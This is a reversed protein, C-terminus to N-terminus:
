TSQRATSGERAASALEAKQIVEIILKRDSDESHGFRNTLPEQKLEELSARELYKPRYINGYPGTPPYPALTKMCFDFVTRYQRSREAYYEDNLDIGEIRMADEDSKVKEYDIAGPDMVTAFYELDSKRYERWLITQFGREGFEIGYSKSQHKKLIDFHSRLTLYYTVVGLSWIDVSKDYTCELLYLEPAMIYDTGQTGEGVVNEGTELETLGFDCLKMRGARSFLINELKLDRHIFGKDHVFELALIIGSLIVGIEETTLILAEVVYFLDFALREMVIWVENTGQADQLQYTSFLKVVYQNDPTQLAKLVSVEQIIDEYELPLLENEYQGDEDKDEATDVTIIKAVRFSSSDRVGSVTPRRQVSCVLGHAGDALKEFVEHKAESVLELKETELRPLQRGDQSESSGM